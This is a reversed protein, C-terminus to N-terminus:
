RVLHRRLCRRRGGSGSPPACRCGAARCARRERVDAIRAVAREYAGDVDRGDVFANAVMTITHKLHDFVLVADALLFAM